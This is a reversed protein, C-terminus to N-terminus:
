LFLDCAMESTRTFIVEYDLIALQTPSIEHLYTHQSVFAIGQPTVYNPFAPSFAITGQQITLWKLPMAVAMGNHILWECRKVQDPKLRLSPHIRYTLPIGDTLCNAMGVASGEPFDFDVSQNIGFHIQFKAKESEFFKLLLCFSM